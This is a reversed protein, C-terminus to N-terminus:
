PWESHWEREMTEKFLFTKLKSRVSSRPLACSLGMQGACHRPAPSSTFDKLWLNMKSLKKKNVISSFRLQYTVWHKWLSPNLTINSMLARKWRHHWHWYKEKRLFVICSIIILLFYHPGSLVSDGILTFDRTSATFRHKWYLAGPFRIHGIVLSRYSYRFGISRNQM